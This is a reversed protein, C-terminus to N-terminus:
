GSDVQRIHCVPRIGVTQKLILVATKRNM